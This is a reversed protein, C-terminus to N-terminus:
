PHYSPNEALPRQDINTSHEIVAMPAFFRSNLLVIKGDFRSLAVIRSDSTWTVAKIGLGSAEVSLDHYTPVYSSTAMNNRLDHLLDIDFLNLFM